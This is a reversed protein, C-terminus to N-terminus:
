LYFLYHKSIMYCVVVLRLFISMFIEYYEMKLCKAICKLVSEIKMGTFEFKCHTIESFKNKSPISYVFKFLNTEKWRPCLDLYNPLLFKVNCNTWPKQVICMKWIYFYVLLLSPFLSTINFYKNTQRMMFLM